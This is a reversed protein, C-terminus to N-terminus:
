ANYNGGVFENNQAMRVATVFNNTSDFSYEVPRLVICSKDYTISGDPHKLPELNDIYKASTRGSYEAPIITGDHIDTLRLNNDKLWQVGGKKSCGAVTIHPEGRSDYYGYKKSGWAILDTEGESDWIGICHRNGHKDKPAYEDIPYIQSLETERKANEVAIVASINDLSKISDTDWYVARCNHRMLDLDNRAHATTWIGITYPMSLGYKKAPFVNKNYCEVDTLTDYEWKGSKYLMDHMIPYTVTMGYVSNVNAKNLMYNEEEGPVGKLVTKKIYFDLVTKRFVLPLLGAKEHFILYTCAIDTYGYNRNLIEFDISTVTLEVYDAKIIRGNSEQVNQYRRCKSISVTPYDDWSKLWLGKIVFTAVYLLKKTKVTHIDREPNVAVIAPSLPYIDKVMRYPYSSSIDYNYTHLLQNAYKESAHVDGGIYADKYKLFKSYPLLSRGAYYKYEPDRLCNNRTARRVYGTKTYPLRTKGNLYEYMILVDAIIYQYEEATLETLPTRYVDYDLKGVQKGITVEPTDKALAELSKGTLMYTCRFEIGNDTRAAIVKRENRTLTSAWVFFDKIFAWEYSLNHVYIKSGKPLSHVFDVFEGWHRGIYVVGDVCIQFVYMWSRTNHSDHSTEIDFCIISEKRVASVDFSSIPYAEISRLNGSKETIDVFIQSETPKFNMM